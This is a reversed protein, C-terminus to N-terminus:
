VTPEYIQGEAFGPRLNVQRLRMRLSKVATLQMRYPLSFMYRVDQGASVHGANSLALRRRVAMAISGLQGVETACLETGFILAIGLSTFFGTIRRLSFM